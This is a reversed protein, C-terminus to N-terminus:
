KQDTAVPANWRPQCILLTRAHQPGGTRASTPAPQRVRQQVVMLKPVPKDDTSQDQTPQDTGTRANDERAQEIGRRAVGDPVYRARGRSAFPRGSGEHVSGIVAFTHAGREIERRM